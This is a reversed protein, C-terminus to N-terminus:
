FCLGVQLWYAVAEARPKGVQDDELFFNNGLDAVEVLAEDVLSVSHVGALVLSKM